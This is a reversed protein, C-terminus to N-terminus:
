IPRFFVTVEAAGACAFDLYLGTRCLRSIGIAGNLGKYDAEFGCTPTIETGTADLGDYVTLDTVDNVGDMGILLGLFECIGTYVIGSAAMKQSTGIGM